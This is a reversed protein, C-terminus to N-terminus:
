TKFQCTIKFSMVEQDLFKESKISELKIDSFDSFFSPDEKMSTIFKGILATGQEGMSSAYGSINLYRLSAKKTEAKMIKKKNGGPASSAKVQVPIDIEKEQYTLGTLWIGQTMSDSLANLERAWLFRDAMLGEIAKAKKNTSDVEAKLADYEKKGPLLKKYKGSMTKFVSASKAGIFFLSLHLIALVSIAAIGINKIFGTQLKFSMRMKTFSSEHARQEEPILNIKIM